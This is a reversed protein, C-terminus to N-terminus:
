IGLSDCRCPFSEMGRSFKGTRFYEIVKKTMELKKMREMCKWYYVIKSRQMIGTSMFMDDLHLYIVTLEFCLQEYKKNLRAVIKGMYM